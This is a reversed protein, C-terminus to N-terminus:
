TNWAASAPLVIWLLGFMMFRFFCGLRGIGSSSRYTVVALQREGHAGFREQMWGQVSGNAFTFIGTGHKRGATYRPDRWSMILYDLYKNYKHPTLGQDYYDKTLM